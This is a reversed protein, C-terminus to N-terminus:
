RSGYEIASLVSKSKNGFVNAMQKMSKFYFSVTFNNIKM